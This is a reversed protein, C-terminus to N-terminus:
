TQPQESYRVDYVNGRANIIRRLRTIEDHQASIRSLAVIRFDELEAILKQQKTIRTQLRAMRLKLRAIQAERPDPVTGAARLNERRRDFDDKLHRYTTYLAARSVGAELALTKTDCKQGPTIAGCLIRDAAAHIRDETQKRQEDTVRM